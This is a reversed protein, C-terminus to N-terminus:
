RGRLDMWRHIFDTFGPVSCTVDALDGACGQVDEKRVVGGLVLEGEVMEGVVEGGEVEGGRRQKEAAACV